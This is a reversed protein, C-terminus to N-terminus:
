AQGVDDQEYNDMDKYGEALWEALQTPNRPVLKVGAARPLAQAACESEQDAIPDLKLSADVGRARYAPFVAKRGKADLEARELKFFYLLLTVTGYLVKNADVCSLDTKKRRLIHSVYM